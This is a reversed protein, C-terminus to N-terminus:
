GADVEVFKVCAADNGFNKSLLRISASKSTSVWRIVKIQVRQKGKDDFGFFISSLSIFM